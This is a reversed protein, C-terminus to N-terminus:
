SYENLVWVEKSGKGSAGTWWCLGLDQYDEVHEPAYSFRVRDRELRDPDVVECAQASIQLAADSRDLKGSIVYAGNTFVQAESFFEDFKSM